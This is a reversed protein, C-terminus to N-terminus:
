RYLSAFPAKIEQIDKVLSLPTNNKSSISSIFEDYDGDHTSIIFSSAEGVIELLYDTKSNRRAKGGIYVMVIPMDLKEVSDIFREIRHIEDKYSTDNIVEGIRSYGVVIVVSRVLELDVREAKPMFYNHLMLENAIDKIIYTDTSQGASTILIKEDAIPNPLYINTKHEKYSSSKFWNLITLTIITGLFILAIRKIIIKRKM